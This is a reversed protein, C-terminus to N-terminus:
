DLEFGNPYFPALATKLPHLHADYHRWRQVSSSYIPQRVQWNSVTRVQTTNENFAICAPDWELGLFDVVRRAQGETDAVVNEYQVSLIPNPLVKEWHDMLERYKCYFAGLDALDSTYSHGSPLNQMYCSVCTDMPDRLAHIIHAKPFTASLLALNEFNSLRKDLIRDVKPAHAKLASIYIRGFAARRDKDLTKLADLQSRADHTQVGLEGVAQQLAPSEGVSGIKPHASLIQALLTSGSRPMGVILIPTEDPSGPNGLYTASSVGDKLQDVFRGYNAGDHTRGEVQKAKAWLAFSADYSKQDNKAKALIKLLEALKPNNAQSFRPILTNELYDLAPNNTDWPGSSNLVSYVSPLDPQSKQLAGAISRAEELDGNRILLSALKLQAQINTPARKVLLRLIKLAKDIENCNALILATSYIVTGDTPALKRAREIHKRAEDHRELRDLAQAAELWCRHDKPAIKIAKQTAKLTLAYRQQGRAYVQALLLLLRHDKPHKQILGELLKVAQPARGTKLLRTVQEPLSPSPPM